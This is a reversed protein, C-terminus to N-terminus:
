SRISYESTAWSQDTIKVSGDKIEKSNIEINLKKLKDKAEDINESNVQLVVNGRLSIEVNYLPM